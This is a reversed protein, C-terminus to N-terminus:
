EPLQYTYIKGEHADAIWLVKNIVLMGQPFAIDAGADAGLSWNYNGQMDFVLVRRRVADSVFVHNEGIALYPKEDPNSRDWVPVSWLKV